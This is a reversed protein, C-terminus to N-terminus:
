LQMDSIGSNIAAAALLAIRARGIALEKWFGFRFRDDHAPLFSGACKKQAGLMVRSKSTFTRQTLLGCRASAFRLPTVALHPGPFRPAFGCASSCSGSVLRPPAPRAPLHGRLRLPWLAM